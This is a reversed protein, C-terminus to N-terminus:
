VPVLRMAGEGPILNLRRQHHGAIAPRHAISVVAAKPLRQKILAYLHQENDPDLSATAEDLFLFDPQHLLARAVALRQQEGSSMLMSWNQSEDLREAFHALRCSSLAESIAEDGFAGTQAPYSVADRLTGIPIYPKQPLFLLRAGQPVHIRGKGYPWIGALARFLTSKGSGSPGTILVGEGPAIDFAAGAVITRGPQGNSGPLGLDLEARLSPQAGREVPITPATQAEHAAAELASHFTILRDASARWNALTGYIDVFWSLAGQVQGFASNIQMLGGLTIGGSFYRPAAVVLPFIIALQNYTVTYSTLRKTYSMLLWWNARILEFRSLLGQREPEEGHYLAVGEANERLRVLNFRFDAEFREQQFNLGILPRGVYHALISGVIAYILACWVMYGPITVGLLTIPGSVTWLITVFSVLTVVSSLLGLTLSLTGDAFLRLDEAIRQDPNDTGRKDLELRYYVQNCMWEDLYRRTLWQRWRMTLMQTLYLKYIASFIFLSALFGFYGMLVFFDESNKQELSNYMERYWTNFQVSLFVLFLTLAVISLLLAWARGREESQWYPHVMAWVKAPFSRKSSINNM